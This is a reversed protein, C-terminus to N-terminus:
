TPSPLHLIGTPYSPFCLRNPPPKFSSQTIAHMKESFVHPPFKLYLLFLINFPIIQTPQIILIRKSASRSKFNIM